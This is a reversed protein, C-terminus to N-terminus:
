AAQKSRLTVVRQRITSTRYGDIAEGGTTKCNTKVADIYAIVDAHSADMRPRVGSLNVYLDKLDPVQISVVEHRGSEGKEGRFMSTCHRRSRAGAVPDAKAGAITIDLPLVAIAKAFACDSCPDIDEIVDVVLASVDAYEFDGELSMQKEVNFQLRCVKGAKDTWFNEIAITKKNAM